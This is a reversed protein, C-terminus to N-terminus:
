QSVQPIAFYMGLTFSGTNTSPLCGLPRYTTMLTFAFLSVTETCATEPGIVNCCWSTAQDLSVGRSVLWFARCITRSAVSPFYRNM